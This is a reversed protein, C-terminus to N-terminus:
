IGGEEQTNTKLAACLNEQNKKNNKNKLTVKYPFFIEVTKDVTDYIDRLTRFFNNYM